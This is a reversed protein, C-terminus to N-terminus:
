IEYITIGSRLKPEIWTSKPPMTLGADAVEKLQSISVPFLAIGAAYKGSDVASVMDEFGSPGGTFKIRNSTKLDTIDLVPGLLYDSLIQPDLADVPNAIPKTRNFTLKYWEKMIYLGFENYAKPKVPSSSLEVTFNTKLENLVDDKSKGGLDKILRNFDYILLNKDSIFYSMFYHASERDNETGSYDNGLLASSASRHHGDAIYLASMNEFAHKIANIDEKKDVVWLIHQKQDTTSFNYVPTEKRYKDIVANISTNDPHMMLVPEANFSCIDLYRKFVEERATLTQEHKKIIDKNYDDISAGAIIGCFSQDGIQEYIYYVEENDQLLIGENKFEEYKSRVNAFREDSNPETKVVERFEPNIIHIFTYPNSDLKRELVDPAYTYFARSAVLHAKDQTPRVGRFPRVDAM